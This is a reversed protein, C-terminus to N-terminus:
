RREQLPNVLAGGVADGEVAAPAVVEATSRSEPGAPEQWVKSFGALSGSLLLVQRRLQPDKRVQGPSIGGRQHAARRDHNPHFRAIPSSPKGDSSKDENYPSLVRHDPNVISTLLHGYHKVQLMKGGLQVSYDADDPQVIDSEFVTHCAPCGLAVFTEEGKAADGPPLVFGSVKIGDEDCGGLLLM